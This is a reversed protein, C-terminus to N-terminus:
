WPWRACGKPKPFYRRHVSWSWDHEFLSREMVPQFLLRALLPEYENLHHRMFAPDRLRRGSKEFRGAGIVDGKSGFRKALVILSVRNLDYIGIREGEIDSRELAWPSEGFWVSANMAGDRIDLGLRVVVGDHLSADAGIWFNEVVTRVRTSSQEFYRKLLIACEEAAEQESISM